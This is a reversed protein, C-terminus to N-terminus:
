EEKLFDELPPLEIKSVYKKFIEKGEEYDYVVHVSYGQREFHALWKKQNDTTKNPRIKLEIVLGTYDKNKCYLVLDPFGSRVGMTKFRAAESKTRLGGNPSHHLWDSIQPFEFHFFRVLQIQLADEPNQKKNISSKAGINKFKKIFDKSRLRIFQTM